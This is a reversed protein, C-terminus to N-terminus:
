GALLETPTAGTLIKWESILHAQDFYGHDFPLAAWNVPIENNRCRAASLAARLRVIRAFTKPALGVQENFIRALHQRSLNLDQALLNISLNGGNALLRSVAFQVKANLREANFSRALLKEVLAIRAEIKKEGEIAAVARAAKGRWVDVLAIQRDAIEGCSFDFFGRAAGPRFRVGFFGSGDFLPVSAARTMTGVVAGAPHNADDFIIDVCGDPIVRHRRQAQVNKGTALSWYCAVSNKLFPSPAYERYILSMKQTQNLNRNEATKRSATM